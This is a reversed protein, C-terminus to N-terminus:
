STTVFVRIFAAHGQYTATISVNGPGVASILGASVTAVTPDSTTWTAATTVDQAGGGTLIASAGLQFTTGALMEFPNPQATVIQLLDISSSPVSPSSGVATGTLAVSAKLGSLSDVTLWASLSGPTNPRFQVNIVCTAGAALSPPCNTSIPFDATDTNALGITQGTTTSLMVTSTAATDGVATQPFTVTTTSLNLAATPGAGGSSCAAFLM